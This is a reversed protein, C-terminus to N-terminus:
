RNIRYVKLTSCEYVLTFGPTDETISSIGSFLTEDYDERLNIFGARDVGGNLILVYRADIADVAAQVEPDSAYDCLRERIIRSEPTENEGGYGVFKRYYVRLGNAGYALFSGDMPNNIVLEGQPIIGTSSIHDLFAQESADLPDSWSYVTRIERRYDGFTTRISKPWDYPSVDKYAAIDADTYQHHLGPLNFEPIFNVFLFLCASITAVAKLYEAAHKNPAHANARREIVGYLWSLGVTALPIASIAAIASLRMPDTYWFGSLFQKLYGERSASVIIICCILTYSAVLWRVGCQHLACVIGMIVVAGLLLQAGVEYNFGFNYCLTLINIIAQLSTTYSPWVHNVTDQFIPLHFCLLWFGICVFVFALCAIAKRLTSWEQRNSFCCIRSICYPALFVICTFITNPHCLAIGVITVLLLSLIKARESCTYQDAILFIFLAMASPMLAFGAVNAYIPGFTLLNWPFAVFALSVLSACLQMRPSDGFLASILAIINLPFVIFCIVFMSSNIVLPVSLQTAQVTLACLAHWAAPYFGNYHLPAIARDAATLYASTDFSSLIGSDAMARILYLHQTVDYAQFLADAEGIRSLFLNYGLAIGLIICVAPALPSIRPLAVVRTKRHMLCYLTISPLLITGFITIPSSPIHVLAFVQGVIAILSLSVLPSLLLSWSIQVGTARLVCFGPLVLFATLILASLAFELWM